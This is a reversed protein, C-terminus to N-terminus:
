GNDARAALPAGTLINFDPLSLLPTRRRRANQAHTERESLWETELRELGEESTANTRARTKVANRPVVPVATRVIRWESLTRAPPEREVSKRHWCQAPLWTM